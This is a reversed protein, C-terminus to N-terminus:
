ACWVVTCSLSLGTLAHFDHVDGSLTVIQWREHIWNANSFLHYLERLIVWLIEVSFCIYESHLWQVTMMRRSFAYSLMQLVRGHHHNLYVMASYYLFVIYCWKVSSYLCPHCVYMIENVFLQVQPPVKPLLWSSKLFSSVVLYECLM